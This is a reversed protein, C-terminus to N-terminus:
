PCNYRYCQLKKFNQPGYVWVGSGILASNPLSDERGFKMKILAVHRGQPAFFGFIRGHTFVIGASSGKPCIRGTFIILETVFLSTM